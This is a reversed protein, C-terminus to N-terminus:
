ELKGNKYSVDIINWSKEYIDEYNKPGDPGFWLSPAVVIKAYNKNLFSGWWSFTSNSRINNVCLSMLWLEEYDKESIIIKNQLKINELFEHNDSFLFIYSYDGIKKIANMLYNESVTPHITPYKLYDGIRVHLSVTNKENLQPYKLYMKEVFSNPPSFIDIIEEQHNAFYKSSQFYGYFLTNKNTSHIKNYNFEQEQVVNYNTINDVFKLKSYINDVYKATNNGQLQTTSYPLFVVERETEFGQSLAHSIQFLQNGLGGNLYSSIYNSM